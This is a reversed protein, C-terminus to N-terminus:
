VFPDREARALPSELQGVVAVAAAPPVRGRPTARQAVNPDNMDLISVDCSPCALQKARRIFRLQDVADETYQRYGSATRAPGALLGQREYFRVTEVGVNAQRAIQGITLPKM